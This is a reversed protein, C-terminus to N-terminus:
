KILSMKRVSEIEGTKLKYFYIGSSYKDADWNVTHKGATLHGDVLTEIIQGNLNYVKLSVQGSVALDFGISTQANFPNPYNPYLKNELPLNSDQEDGFWGHLNWGDTGEVRGAILTFPFQYTDFTEDPYQGVHSIYDYTGLPAFSPVDQVANWATLQQGPNLNLNHFEKVPGYINGGPLKLMVWVDVNQQSDSLNEITGIFSFSEGPRLEVPDEHPIMSIVVDPLSLYFDQFTTDNEAVSVNVTDSKYDGTAECIIDWSSDAPVLMTFYGQSDTYYKIQPDRNDVTLVADLGESSDASMVRGSIFGRGSLPTLDTVPIHAAQLIDDTDNDQVFIVINTQQDDIISNLTFDRTFFDSFGDAIAFSEGTAGPVMDRMVQHYYVGGYYCSDEIVVCQFRLNSYGVSDVADVTVILETERSGSNYSGWINIDLPSEVTLRSGVRSQFSAHACYDGDVLGYPVYGVSYYSVRSGVESPNFTYFPDGSNPWNVHYRIAAMADGYVAITSNLNAEASACYPCGSNVFLEVIPVRQVANASYNCLLLILVVGFILYKVRM